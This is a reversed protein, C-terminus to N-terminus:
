SPDPEQMRHIVATLLGLSVHLDPASAIFNTKVCGPATLERICVILAEPKSRGEDIDRLANILVDRPTWDNARHSKDSRIEGVSMPHDAFNDTM